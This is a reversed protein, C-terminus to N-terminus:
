VTQELVNKGPEPPKLPDFAELTEPFLGLTANRKFRLGSKYPFDLM